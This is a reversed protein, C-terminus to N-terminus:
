IEGKLGSPRSSIQAERALHLIALLVEDPDRNFHKGMTEVSVGRNWMTVMESLESEEWVFDLDECVIVRNKRANRIPSGRKAAQAMNTGSTILIKSTWGCSPHL